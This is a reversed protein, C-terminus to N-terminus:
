EEHAGESASSNGFARYSTCCPCRFGGLLRELRLQCLAVCRFVVCNYFVSGAYVAGAGVRLRSLDAAVTEGKREVCSVSIICPCGWVRGRCPEEM